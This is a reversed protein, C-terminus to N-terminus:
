SSINSTSYKIIVIGSGGTGGHHFNGGSGGGGGGTNPMADLADGNSGASGGGNGGAGGTSGGGGGGGAFWGSDGVAAGFSISFNKGDGGAGGTSLNLYDHGAEGAGGGAGGPYTSAQNANGGSFGQGLTGAVGSPYTYAGGGGSGGVAAPSNRGAGGGGGIATFGFASSNGGNGGTCSGGVYIGTDYIGGAGVAINYSTGPVVTIRKKYLLGGAGGGGAHTSTSATLVSGGGGGGAVILVDIKTVGTPAVWATTGVTTFSTTIKNQYSTTIKKEKDVLNLNIRGKGENYVSKVMRDSLANNFIKVEDIKGQYNYEPSSGDDSGLSIPRNLYAGNWSTTGKLEGNIFIKINGETRNFVAALHNWGIGVGTWQAKEQPNNNVSAVATTGSLYLSLGGYVPPNSGVIVGSTAQSVWATFTYSSKTTGTSLGTRIYLAANSHVVNYTDNFLYSGNIKGDSVPTAGYNTAHNNNGSSDNTNGDLKYHALLAM